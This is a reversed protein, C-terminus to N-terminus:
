KSGREQQKPTSPMNPKADKPATSRPKLYLLTLLGYRECSENGCYIGGGGGIVGFITNMSEEGELEKECKICWKIKNEKDM